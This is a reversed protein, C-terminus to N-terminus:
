ESPLSKLYVYSAGSGGDKPQAPCWALIMSQQSLWNQVLPKLVADKDSRHGKGHVVILFKFDSSLAQDIFEILATTAQQQNYGHLDLHDNV